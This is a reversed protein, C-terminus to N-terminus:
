MDDHVMRFGIVFVSMRCSIIEKSCTPHGRVQQKASDAVLVDGEKIQEDAQAKVYSLTAVFSPVDTSAQSQITTLADRYFRQFDAYQHALELRLNEKAM